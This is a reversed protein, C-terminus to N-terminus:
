KRALEEPNEITQLGVMEEGPAREAKIFITRTSKILSGEGFIISAFIGLPIFWIAVAIAFIYISNLEISSGFVENTASIALLLGYHTALILFTLVLVIIMLLGFWFFYNNVVPGLSFGKLEHTRSYDDIDAFRFSAHSMEIYSIMCFGFLLVMVIESIPISHGTDISSGSLIVGAVFIIISVALFLMNLTYDGMKKLIKVNGIWIGAIGIGVGALILVLGFVAYEADPDSLLGAYLVLSLILMVSAIARLIYVSGSTSGKKAPAKAEAPAPAKKDEAM